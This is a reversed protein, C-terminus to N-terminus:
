MKIWLYKTGTVTMAPFEQIDPPSRNGTVKNHTFWFTTVPISNDTSAGQCSFSYDWLYRSFSLKYMFVNLFAAWCPLAVNNHLSRWSVQEAIYCWALHLGRLLRPQCAHAKRGSAGEKTQLWPLVAHVPLAACRWCSPSAALEIQSRAAQYKCLLSFLAFGTLLLARMNSHVFAVNFLASCSVTMLISVAAIGSNDSSAQTRRDNGAFSYMAVTRENLITMWFIPGMLPLPAGFCIALQLTLALKLVVESSTELLRGVILRGSPLLFATIVQKSLWLDQIKLAFSRACKSAYRPGAHSCVDSQRLAGIEYPGNNWTLTIDFNLGQGQRKKSCPEWWTKWEDLCAEDLYLVVCGVMCTSIFTACSRFTLHNTSRIKWALPPIVVANLIGQLAGICMNLLKLLERHVTHIPPMCKASVAVVSPLSLALVLVVWVMWVLVRGILDGMTEEKKQQYDVNLWWPHLSFSCLRWWLLVVVVQALSSHSLCASALTVTSPCVLSHSSSVLGLLFLSYLVHTAIFALLATAVQISPCYALRYMVLSLASMGIRWWFSMVFVVVGGIIKVLLQEGTDDRFWFLGDQEFPSVWSPFLGKEPFTLHNGVAVLSTNIVINNCAPLRCSLQNRHLILASEPILRLGPMHKLLNHHLSLVQFTCQFAPIPGEWKQSHAVVLTLDMLRALQPPLAGHMQPRGNASAVTLRWLELLRSLCTPMVGEFLNSSCSLFLLHRQLCMRSPISGSFSNDAVALIRLNSVNQPLWEALGGHLGNASVM